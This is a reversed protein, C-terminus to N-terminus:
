RWQHYVNCTMELKGGKVMYDPVGVNSHSAKSVTESQLSLSSIIAGGVVSVDSSPSQTTTSVLLCGVVAGIFRGVAAGVFRGDYTGVSVGVSFGVNYGINLGVLFGVSFGVSM